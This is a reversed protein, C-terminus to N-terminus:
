RACTGNRCTGTACDATAACAGGLARRCAGVGDCALGDRCSVTPTGQGAMSWAVLSRAPDCVLCPSAPHVAGAAVYAGDVHCGPKCLGDNCVSGAACPVGVCDLDACDTRRDCDDDVGNGCSAGSERVCLGRCCSGDRCPTGDVCEDDGCDTAGDGDDDVRNDCTGFSLENGCRGAVCREGPKCAVGCAGCHAEDSALDACSSACCAKRDASCDEVCGATAVASAVCAGRRCVWGGGCDADASCAFVDTPTDAVRCASLLTLLGLFCWRM